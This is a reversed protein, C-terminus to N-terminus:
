RAARIRSVALAMFTGALIAIGLWILARRTQPDMPPDEVVEIVPQTVTFSAAVDRYVPDRSWADELQFVDDASASSGIGALSSELVDVGEETFIWGSFYAPWDLANNNTVLIEVPDDAWTVPVEAELHYAFFEGTGVGSPQSEMPRWAVQVAEGDVLVTLGESLEKLMRETFARDQDEGVEELGAVERAFRRMVTAAPLETSYQIGLAGERARLVIRHAYYREGFPHAQILTPVALLVLALM